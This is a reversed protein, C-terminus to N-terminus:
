AEMKAALARQHASVRNHMARKAEGFSPYPAVGQPVLAGNIKLSFGYRGGSVTTVRGAEIKQTKMM